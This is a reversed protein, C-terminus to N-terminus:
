NASEEVLFNYLAEPETLDVETGDSRKVVKSCSGGCDWLWWSIWGGDRHRDEMLEELMNVYEEMLWGVEETLWEAVLPVISGVEDIRSDMKELHALRELFTNKDLM